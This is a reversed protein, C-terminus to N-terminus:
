HPAAALGPSNCILIRIFIRRAVKMRPMQLRATTNEPAKLRHLPSMAFSSDTSPTPKQGPNPPFTLTSRAQRIGNQKSQPPSLYRVDWLPFSIKTGQHAKSQSMIWQTMLKGPKTCYICQICILITLVIDSLNCKLSTLIERPLESRGQEKHASNIEGAPEQEM